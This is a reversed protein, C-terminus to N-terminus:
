APIVRGLYEARAREQRVVKGPTNILTGTDFYVDRKGRSTPFWWNSLLHGNYDVTAHGWDGHARVTKKGAKLNRISQAIADRTALIPTYHYLRMMWTMEEEVAKAPDRQKLPIATARTSGQPTAASCVSATLLVILTTLHIRMLM